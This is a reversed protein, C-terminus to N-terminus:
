EANPCRSRPLPKREEVEPEDSEIVEGVSKDDDNALIPEGSEGM